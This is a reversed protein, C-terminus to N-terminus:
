VLGSKEMAGGSGEWVGPWVGVGLVGQWKKAHLSTSGFTLSFTSFSGRRNGREEM